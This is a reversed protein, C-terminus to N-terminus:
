RAAPFLKQDNLANRVAEKRALGRLNIALVRGNPGILFTAPIARILYKETVAKSCRGRRLGTDLDALESQYIEAPGPHWQRVLPRGAFVEPRRRLDAPHGEVAPDAAALGVM